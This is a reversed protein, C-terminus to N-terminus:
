GRFTGLITIRGQKSVTHDRSVQENKIFYFWREPNGYLHATRTSQKVWTTGNLKFVNLVELDKFQM